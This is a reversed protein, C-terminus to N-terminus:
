ADEREDFLDQWVRWDISEDAFPPAPRSSNGLAPMATWLRAAAWVASDSRAGDGKDTVLLRLERGGRVDLEIRKTGTHGYVPGSDYVKRNDLYIRFIVSGARNGVEDDVGAHTTFLTYRGDLNIRVDSHAFVGLGKRYLANNLKITRGDGAAATGNSGDREVPGLGNGVTRFPLDSLYPNPNAADMVRQIAQMWRGAMKREGSEDPHLGDYLDQHPSFGSVQDVIIVSSTATTMRAALAPLQGNFAELHWVLSPIIQALLITVNPNNKQLRTIIREIDEVTSSVSQGQFLDNTGIHLLVIDPRSHAMWGDIHQVLMDARIGVHGQHDQDFDPFRPTGNWVGRNSGVFDVDYGANNLQHWLWYRYTANGDLGETISDGLPMIRTAALLTRAELPELNIPTSTM